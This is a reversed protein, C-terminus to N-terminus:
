LHLVQGHSHIDRLGLGGNPVSCILTSQAITEVRSGWLFLWIIQNVRDCVWRLPTIISSIFLWKSLGLINLVFVKSILYLPSANTWSLSGWDVKLTGFSVGLINIKRVWM